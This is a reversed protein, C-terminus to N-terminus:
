GFSAPSRPPPWSSPAGRRRFVMLRDNRMYWQPIAVLDICDFNSVLVAFFHADAAGGMWEGVYVLYEGRHATLADVAM